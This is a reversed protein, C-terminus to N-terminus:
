LIISIETHHLNGYLDVVYVSGTARDTLLLYGQMDTSICPLDDVESPVPLVRVPVLSAYRYLVLAKCYAVIVNDCLVTVNYPTYIGDFFIDQLIGTITDSRVDVVHVDGGCASVTDPARVGVSHPRIVCRLARQRVLREWDLHM